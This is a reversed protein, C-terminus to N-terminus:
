WIDANEFSLIRLPLKNLPEVSFVEVPYAGEESARRFHKGCTCVRGVADVCVHEVYRYPAFWSKAHQVWDLQSTFEFMKDGFQINRTVPMTM